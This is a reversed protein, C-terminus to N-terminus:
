GRHVCHAAQNGQNVRQSYDSPIYIVARVFGTRLDVIADSLSSYEEIDMTRPGAALTDSRQRVLRSSATHNKTSSQSM